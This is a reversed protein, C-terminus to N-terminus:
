AAPTLPRTPPSTRRPAASAVIKGAAIYLDQAADTNSAPDILRGGKIRIKMTQSTTDSSQNPTNQRTEHNLGTTM